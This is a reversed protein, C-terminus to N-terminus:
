PLANRYKKELIAGKWPFDSGGDLVHNKPGGSDVAWVADRDTRGNKCSNRSHCVSRGVSSAVRDTVIYDCRRILHPMTTLYRTPQRIDGFDENVKFTMKATQLGKLEWIEPFM